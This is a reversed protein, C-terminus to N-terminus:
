ILHFDKAKQIAEIRGHVDLKTYINRIHTRITNVSVFLEGAIEESTLASDLWRLVQLERESLPEILPAAQHKSQPRSLVPAAPARPTAPLEFAPLLRDIYATQIGKTLAIKLLRFMPAGRDVFIRVYGEPEALALCHRIVDLAEDERGLAHLAVAQFPLLNLLTWYKGWQELEKIPEALAELVGSFDGQANLLSVKIVLFTGGGKLSEEILPVIEQFKEAALPVEGKVLHFWIENYTSLRIFWSSVKVALQMARHNVIFAEELEGAACLAKSLCTLTYHLTDAQKWGEALAIGQRACAIALEVENWELHVLCKNAHAYALVPLRETVKGSAEMLSLVQQCLSFAQHLRGQLIKVFALNAYAQFSEYLRETRQGASVAAEFSHVAAPLDDLYQLALGEINMLHSRTIWDDEPLNELATHTFKLALDSEGKVWAVYARVADLHSALHQREVTNEVGTMAQEAHKLIREVGGSPDVYAKVWAYAVCLWPKSCIQGESLEEFHQLVDLLEAHEVMALANGSVFENVRLVDGAELAHSIAEALFNNEAYWESARQHLEVIHDPRTHKLRKHLLEVFLHHYRYWQREDDLPILFLNAQEVQDLIAQSDQRGLLADCLPATLQELISTQHLFDRIEAPQQSIVEEMLYDLIFRNSGTFTEIFYSVGQSGQAKLRGQMSLAAMQLGAIWGETRNQLAAIDQSSLRLRLVQNLFQATEASSFRLDAPRLENLEARVRWRALPWPPDMRSAVVLHLGSASQPLHDILFVLDQQIQNETIAHLDDLVLVVREKLQYLDNLLHALLMEMPPSHPSQLSPLMSEGIGARQLSPISQLASVFYSWFRAPASDGKELSLWAVPIGIQSAWESLLTSKGYGAPASILTLRHGQFIGDNLRRVLHPRSILTSHLPPIYLKTALLIDSVSKRGAVALCMDNYLFNRLELSFQSASFPSYGALLLVLIAGRGVLSL